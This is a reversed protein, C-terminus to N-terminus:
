YISSLLHEVTYIKVDGDGLTTGRITEVVNELIAKLGSEGDSFIRVKYGETELLMSVSTLINKDDDVLVKSWNFWEDKSIEWTPIIADYDSEMMKDFLHSAIKM